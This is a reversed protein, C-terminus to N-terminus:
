WRFKRSLGIFQCEFSYNDLSFDDFLALRKVRLLDRQYLRKFPKPKGLKDVEPQTYFPGPSQILLVDWKFNFWIRPGHKQAGFFGYSGFALEYGCRQMVQRSEACVQLLIPVSSTSRVYGGGKAIPKKASRKYYRSEVRTLQVSIRTEEQLALREIANDDILPVFRPGPLAAEWIQTRLEFPLQSFTISTDFSM